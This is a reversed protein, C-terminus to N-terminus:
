ELKNIRPLSPNDSVSLIFYNEDLNVFKVVVRNHSIYYKHKEM